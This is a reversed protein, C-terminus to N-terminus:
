MALSLFGSLLFRLMPMKCFECLLHFTVDPIWIKKCKPTIKSENRGRMPVTLIDAFRNIRVKLYIWFRTVKSGKGRVANDTM